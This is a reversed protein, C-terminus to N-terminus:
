GANALLILASLVTWEVPTGSLRHGGYDNMRIAAIIEYGASIAMIILKM